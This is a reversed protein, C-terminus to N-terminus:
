FRLNPLFGLLFLAWFLTQIAISNLAGLIIVRKYGKKDLLTFLLWIFLVVNILLSTLYTATLQVTWQSVDSIVKSPTGIITCFDIVTRGIFIIVFSLTFILIKKAKM